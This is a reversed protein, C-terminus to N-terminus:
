GVAGFEEGQAATLKRYQRPSDLDGTTILGGGGPPDIWAARM